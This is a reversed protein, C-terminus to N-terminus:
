NFLTKFQVKTLIKKQRLLLNAQNITDIKQFATNVVVTTKGAVVQNRDKGSYSALGKTAKTPLHYKWDDCLFTLPTQGGGWAIWTAIATAGHYLPPLLMTAESTKWKTPFVGFVLSEVNAVNLNSLFKSLNAAHKKYGRFKIAYRKVGNAKAISIKKIMDASFVESVVVLEKNPNRKKWDKIQTDLDSATQYPSKEVMCIKKLTDIQQVKEIFDLNDNTLVTNEAYQFDVLFDYNNFERCIEKIADQNIRIESKAMVFDKQKSSAKKVFIAYPSLKLIPLGYKKSEILNKHTPMVVQITTNTGENNLEQEM